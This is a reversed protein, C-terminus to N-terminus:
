YTSLFNKEIKSTRGSEGDMVHHVHHVNDKRVAVAHFSMPIVCAAGVSFGSCPADYDGVNSSTGGPGLDAAAPYERFMCSEAFDVGDHGFARTWAALEGADGAAARGRLFFVDVDDVSDAVAAGSQDCSADSVASGLQPATLRYCRGELYTWDPPCLDAM